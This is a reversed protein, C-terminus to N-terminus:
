RLHLPNCQTAPESKSASESQAKRRRSSCGARPPPLPRCRQFSFHADCFTTIARAAPCISPNMVHLRPLRPACFVQACTQQLQCSSDILNFQVSNQNCSNPNSNIIHNTKYHSGAGHNYCLERHTSSLTTLLRCRSAVASQACAAGVFTWHERTVRTARM